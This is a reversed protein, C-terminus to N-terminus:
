SLKSHPLKNIVRDFNIVYALTATFIQVESYYQSIVVYRGSKVFNIITVM